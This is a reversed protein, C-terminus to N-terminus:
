KKRDGVAGPLGVTVGLMGMDGVVSAGFVYAMAVECLICLSISWALIPTVLVVSNRRLCSWKIFLFLLSM